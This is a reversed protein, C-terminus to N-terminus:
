NATENQYVEDKSLWLTSRVECKSLDTDGSFVMGSTDCYRGAMKKAYPGTVTQGKKIRTAVTDVLGPLDQAFDGESVWEDDVTKNLSAFASANVARFSETYNGDTTNGVVYFVADKSGQKSVTIKHVNHADGVTAKSNIRQRFTEDQENFNEVTANVLEANTKPEEGLPNADSLADLVSDKVGAGFAAADVVWGPVYQGYGSETSSGDWEFSTEAGGSGSEGAAVPVSLTALLVLGALLVSITQRRKSTM